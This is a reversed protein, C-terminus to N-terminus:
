TNKYIKADDTRERMHSSRQRALPLFRRSAGSGPGAQSFVPRCTGRWWTSRPDAPDRSSCILWNARM